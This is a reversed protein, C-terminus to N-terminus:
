GGGLTIAFVILLLPIFCHAAVGLTIGRYFLPKPMIRFEVWVVTLGLPLWLLLASIVGGVYIAFYLTTALHLLSNIIIITALTVLPWAREARTFCLRLVLLMLLLMFANAMLFAQGSVAIGTARSALAPFGGYFEEAIHVLYSLPFLYALLKRKFKM